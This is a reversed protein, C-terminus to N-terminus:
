GSLAVDAERELLFYRHLQGLQAKVEPKRSDRAIKLATDWIFGDGGTARYHKKILISLVDRYNDMDIIRALGMLADRDEMSMEPRKCIADQPIEEPGDTAFKVLKRPDKHDMFDLLLHLRKQNSFSAASHVNSSDFFWVEGCRMRYVIEGESFYCQENTVLPVHVRHTNRAQSPVSSLELLDKHPIIVSNSIIALRAFTLYELDFLRRILGSLYPLQEAYKTPASQRRHDYHTVIGDGADGSLTWLMCSKWPGGCVYDSYAESFEFRAIREIDYSLADRDINIKGIRYTRM